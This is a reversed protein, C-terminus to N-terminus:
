PRACRRQIIVIVLMGLGLLAMTGPEPVAAPTHAGSLAMITATVTASNGITIGTLDSFDVSFQSGDAGTIISPLSNWALARGSLVGALTFFAGKGEAEVAESSPLDFALMARIEALAGGLGGVGIEFFDFTTSQGPNLAFAVSDLNPNLTASISCGFCLSPGLTATAWSQPDGAIDFTLPAAHAEGATPTGIIAAFALV